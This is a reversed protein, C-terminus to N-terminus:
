RSGGACLLTRHFRTTVQADYIGRWSSKNANAKTKQGARQLQVINWGKLKVQIRNAKHTEHSVQGTPFRWMIAVMEEAMGAVAWNGLASGGM